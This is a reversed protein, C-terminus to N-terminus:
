LKSLLLNLAQCASVATNQDLFMNGMAYRYHDSCWDNWTCPVIEFSRVTPMARIYWYPTGVEPKALVTEGNDTLANFSSLLVRLTSVRELLRDHEKRVAALSECLSEDDTSGKKSSMTKGFVSIRTM